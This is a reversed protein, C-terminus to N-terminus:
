RSSPPETRFHSYATHLASSIDAQKADGRNRMRRRADEILRQSAQNLRRSIHITEDSVLMTFCATHLIDSDAEVTREGPLVVRSCHVCKVSYVIAPVPRRCSVCRDRRGFSVDNLFEQTVERMEALSVSCAFALCADCLAEGAADLLLRRVTEATTM